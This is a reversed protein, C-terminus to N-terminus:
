MRSMIVTIMFVAVILLWIVLMIILFIWQRKNIVKMSQFPSNRRPKPLPLPTPEDDSVPLHPQIAAVPLENSKEGQETNNTGPEDAVPQPQTPKLPNLIHDITRQVADPSFVVKTQTLSIIFRELADRMVIRIIPRLSDVNFAPDSCLLIPEASTLETQGQGQLFVQLARAMRETRILLNPKEDKFNNGSITGWQDGKARYTGTLATVYMVFVGTPGVLILPFNVGLAPPTVNRLLTFNKDLLKDMVFIIHAQARIERFWGAGYKLLAMARDVFNIKSTKKDLYPTQDIIKM